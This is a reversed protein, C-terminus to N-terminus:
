RWAPAQRALCSNDRSDAPPPHPRHPASRAAADIETFAQHLRTLADLDCPRFPMALRILGSALESAVIGRRGLEYRWDIPKGTCRSRTQRPRLLAVSAALSEHIVPRAYPHVAECVAARELPARQSRQESQRSHAQWHALAGAATFLAALNVTEGFRLPQRRHLSQCFEFLPDNLARQAVWRDLLKSSPAVGTSFWGVRLPHYGRFWKQTGALYIDAPLNALPQPYHNLAQAGDIAVLRPRRIAHLRPLLERLPMRVGTATIDSLFLGDCRHQEYSVALADLLTEKPCSEELVLRRVRAVHFTKGAARALRRLTVLYPPWDLDTALVSSCQEFLQMAAITPLTRSQGALLVHGTASAGAFRSLERAFEDLGLWCALDPVNARRRAPLARWGDTLFEEWYLSSGLQSALKLFDLEARRARPCMRGLRATDLYLETAM